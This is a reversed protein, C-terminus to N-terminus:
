VLSILKVYVDESFAGVLSEVKDISPYLSQLMAVVDPNTSVEAFSARAALGLHTRLQNYALIYSNL